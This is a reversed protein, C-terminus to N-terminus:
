LKRSEIIHRAAKYRLDAKEILRQPATDYKTWVNGNYVHKVFVGKKNILCTDGLIPKSANVWPPYKTSKDKM